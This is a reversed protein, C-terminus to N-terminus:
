KCTTNNGCPANIDECPRSCCSRSTPGVMMHSPPKHFDMETHIQYTPYNM